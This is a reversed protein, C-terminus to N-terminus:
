AVTVIIRQFGTLEPTGDDTVELIIDKIFESGETPESM